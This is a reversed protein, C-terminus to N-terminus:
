SIAVEKIQVLHDLVKKLTICKEYLELEEYLHIMRDCAIKLEYGYRSQLWNNHEPDDVNLLILYQYAHNYVLLKNFTELEQVDIQRGYAQQLTLQRSFKDAQLVLKTFLRILVLPHYEAEVEVQKHQNEPETEFLSFILKSDVM